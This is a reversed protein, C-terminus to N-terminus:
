STGFGNQFTMKDRCPGAVALKLSLDILFLVVQALKKTEVATQALHIQYNGHSFYLMPIPSESTCYAPEHTPNTSNSHYVKM